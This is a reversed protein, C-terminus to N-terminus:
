ILLESWNKNSKQLSFLFDVKSVDDREMSTLLTEVDSIQPIVVRVKERSSKLRM